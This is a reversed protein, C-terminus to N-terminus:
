AAAEWGARRRRATRIRRIEDALARVAAQRGPARVGRHPYALAERHLQLVLADLRAGETDRDTDVAVALREAQRERDAALEPGTLGGRVMDDVGERGDGDRLALEACAARVPCAACLRLAQARRTQWRIHPERDTRFFTAPDTGACAAAADVAAQLVARRAAQAQASTMSTPM